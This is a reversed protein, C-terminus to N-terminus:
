TTHKMSWLYTLVQKLAQERLDEHDVMLDVSAICQETLFHISILIM